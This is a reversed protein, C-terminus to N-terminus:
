NAGDTVTLVVKGGAGEESRAQAAAAEALPFTAGVRVSLRGAGALGAIAEMGERDPEVLFASTRVRDGALAALAALDTQGSPVTIILGGDGLCPVAGLGTEGGVLDLVLDVDSVAAGVDTTTYDIAEDIGIEALYDHDAAGATGIVYAGRAKAIQVALSGVGGAAALILVRDGAGVEATDVLTQWATLSSLPLAGAQVDDISDPIPALQRSPVTLYEAYAAGERPFRVMGFVRDGPEFLTVGFGVEEVVGAVDWGPTFPLDGVPLGRSRSKWDAPNIGATHVRVLVETPAPTPVPVDTPRLVEPGGLETQVIAKMTRESMPGIIAAARADCWSSKRIPGMPSLDKGESAAGPLM